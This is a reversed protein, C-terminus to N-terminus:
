SAARSQPATGEAGCNQLVGVAVEIGGGLPLGHGHPELGRLVGARVLM